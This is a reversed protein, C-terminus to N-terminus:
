ALRKSSRIPALKPPGAGSPGREPLRLKAQEVAELGGFPPLDSREEVTSALELLVKGDGRPREPADAEIRAGDRHGGGVLAKWDERPMVRAARSGARQHRGPGGWSDASSSQM